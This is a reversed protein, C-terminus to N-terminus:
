SSTKKAKKKTKKSLSTKESEAALMIRHEKRARQEILRLYQELGGEQRFLQDMRVRNRM